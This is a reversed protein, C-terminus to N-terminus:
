AENNGLRKSLKSLYRKTIEEETAEINHKKLVAKIKAVDEEPVQDFDISLGDEGAADFLNKSKSFWGGPKIEISLDETIQRVEESTVSRNLTEQKEIVLQDVKKRFLNARKINESNASTGYKIGMATLSNNVISTKSEIGDLLKNAKGTGGRIGKQMSSFHKFDQDSLVNRYNWLNENKFADRNAGALQELQYYAKYNTQMQEGKLKKGLYSKIATRSKSPLSEFQEVPIHDISKIGKQDIDSIISEYTNEENERKIQKAEANRNKLRRVTDDREEPDKMKRAEAYSEESSLGLAIIRDTERQANGRKSGAELIRTYESQAEGSMTDKVNDFYQKALRDDGDNLIRSIVQSHTKTVSELKRQELAKKPIGNRKAWKDLEANQAELQQGIIEPEKYRVVAKNQMSQMNAETAENDYVQMQRSSHQTMFRDVSSQSNKYKEIFRAKSVEDKINDNLYTEMSKTYKEQFGAMSEGASRGKKKTFGESGYLMETEYDRIHREAEGDIVQRAKEREEEQIKEYRNGVESIAGGVANAVRDTGGGFSEVSTQVNFKANSRNNGQVQRQAKPVTPM